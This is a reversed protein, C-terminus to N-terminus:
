PTLPRIAGHQLEAATVAAIGSPAQASWGLELRHAYPLSNSVIVVDGLKYPPITLPPPTTATSTEANVENVGIKWNAHFLGTRIPSNSVLAQYAAHLLGDATSKVRQELRAIMTAFDSELSM